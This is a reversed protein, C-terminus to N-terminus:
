KAVAKLKATVKKAARKAVQYKRDRELKTRWKNADITLESITARQIGMTEFAVDMGREAADIEPHLLAPLYKQTDECGDSYAKRTAANM